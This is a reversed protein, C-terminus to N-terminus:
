KCIIYIFISPSGVKHPALNKCWMCDNTVNNKTYHKLLMAYQQKRSQATSGVRIPSKVYACKGWGSTALLLLRLVCDFFYEIMLNRLRKGATFESADLLSARRNLLEGHEQLKEFNGVFNLYPYYNRLGCFYNQPTWHINDYGDEDLVASM